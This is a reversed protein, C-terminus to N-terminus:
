LRYSLRATVVADTLKAYLVANDLAIAALSAFATAVEVDGADFGRDGLKNVVEVVGLVRDKVQLPVALLNRTEFGSRADVDPYFREDAAADEVVVVQRHSVAWGAIGRGPPIRQEHVGPGVTGGAVKITLEGTAPDLLLLSSTEAHLVEAAATMVLQLLEDLNLTSGLATAVRLLQQRLGVEAALRQQLEAIRQHMATVTM